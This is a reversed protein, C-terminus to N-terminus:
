MWTLHVGVAKEGCGQWCKNGSTKKTISMRVPILHYSITRRMQMETLNTFRQFGNEHSSDSMDFGGLISGLSIDLLDGGPNEEILKLNEPKVNLFKICQQATKKKPITYFLPRTENKKMNRGFTEILQLSQEKGTTYKKQKKIM